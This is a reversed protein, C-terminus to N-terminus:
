APSHGGDIRGANGVGEPAVRDLARLGVGGGETLEIVAVGGLDVAEGAGANAVLARGLVDRRLDEQACQPVDLAIPVLASREAAPEVRDGAVGDGAERGPLWGRGREG